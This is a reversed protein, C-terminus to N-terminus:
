FRGQRMFALMDKCDNLAEERDVVFAQTIDNSNLFSSIVKRLKRDDYPIKDYTQTTKPLLLDFDLRINNMQFVRSWGMSTDIVLIYEVGLDNYAKIACNGVDEVELEANIVTTQYYSFIM